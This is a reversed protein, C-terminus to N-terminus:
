AQADPTYLDAWKGTARITAQKLDDVNAAFIRRRSIHTELPVGIVLRLSSEERGTDDRLSVLADGGTALLDIADPTGSFKGLDVFAAGTGADGTLVEYREYKEVTSPYAGRPRERLEPYDHGHCLKQRTTLLAAHIAAAVPESAPTRTPAAGGRTSRPPPFYRNPTYNM